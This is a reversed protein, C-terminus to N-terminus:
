EVHTYCVVVVFVRIVPFHGWYVLNLQVHVHIIVRVQRHGVTLCMYLTHKCKHASTRGSGSGSQILWPDSRTPQHCLVQDVLVMLGKVGAVVSLYRHALPKNVQTGAPEKIPNIFTPSLPTSLSSPLQDSPPLLPLCFPTTM